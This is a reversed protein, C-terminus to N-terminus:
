RALLKPLDDQLHDLRLVLHPSTLPSCPPCEQHYPAWHYSIGRHQPALHGPSPSSKGVQLVYQDDAFERSGNVVLRVFDPFSFHLREGQETEKTGRPHYKRWLRAMYRDQGHQWEDLVAAVLSATSSGPALAQEVPSTGM